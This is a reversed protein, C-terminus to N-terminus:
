TTQTHPARRASAPCRWAARPSSAWGSTLGFIAHAWGLIADGLQELHHRGVPHSGACMRRLSGARRVCTPARWATSSALPVVCHSPTGRAPRSREARLGGLTLLAPHLSRAMCRIIRPPAGSLLYHSRLGPSKLIGSNSTLRRVSAGPYPSCSPEWRNSTLGSARVPTHHSRCTSPLVSRGLSRRGRFSLACFTCRPSPRGVPHRTRFAPSTLCSQSRSQSQISQAACRVVSRNHSPNNYQRPGTPAAAPVDHSAHPGARRPATARSEGSVVKAVRLM